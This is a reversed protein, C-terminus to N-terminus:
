AFSKQLRHSSTSTTTPLSPDNSSLISITASKIKMNDYLLVCTYDGAFTSLFDHFVLYTHPVHNGYGVYYVFNNDMSWRKVQQGSPDFWKVQYHHLDDTTSVEAECFVFDDELYDMVTWTGNIIIVEAPTERHLCLSTSSTALFIVIITTVTCGM